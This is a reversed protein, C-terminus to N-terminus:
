ICHSAQSTSEQRHLARRGTFHEGAQSTSEQRHLARRGVNDDLNHLISEKFEM